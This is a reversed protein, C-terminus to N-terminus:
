PICKIPEGQENWCEESVIKDDKWIQQKWLKDHATAHNITWVGSRKGNDFHAQICFGNEEIDCIKWDGERVDNVMNGVAALHGGEHFWKMLGNAKGNEYWGELLLTGNKQWQRHLGEKLDASYEGEASLQGNEHFKRWLGEKLGNETQNVKKGMVSESMVTEKPLASKEPEQGTCSAATLLMFLVFCTANSFVSLLDKM